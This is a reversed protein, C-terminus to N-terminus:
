QQHISTGCETCLPSSGIPYGCAPCRNRRRRSARRAHGIWFLVLYACTGFALWNVVFGGIIPRLPLARPVGWRGQDSTLPVGWTTTWSAYTTDSSHVAMLAPLPWGRADEFLAHLSEIQDRTPATRIRSWSPGRDVGKTLKSAEQEVAFSLVGIATVGNVLLAGDWAPGNAATVIQKATGNFLPVRYESWWAVGVTLLAGVAVALVIRFRNNPLMAAACPRKASDTSVTAAARLPRRAAGPDQWM